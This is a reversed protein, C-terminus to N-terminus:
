APLIPTVLVDVETSRGGVRIPVRVKGDIALEDGNAIKIPSFEGCQLIWDCRDAMDRGAITVDSGTNGYVTSMIARNVQQHNLADMPTRYVSAPVGM